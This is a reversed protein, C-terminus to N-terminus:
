KRAHYKYLVSQNGPAVPKLDIFHYAEGSIELVDDKTPVIGLDTSILGMKDGALVLTENRNTLSYGTELLICPHQTPTGPQPNHPPGTPAGARLITAAFGLEAILPRAVEVEIDTYFASM